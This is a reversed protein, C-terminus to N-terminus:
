HDEHCVWSPSVHRLFASVAPVQQRGSGGGRQDLRSPRGRQDLHSPACRGLRSVGRGLCRSPTRVKRRHINLDQSGPLELLGRSDTAPAEMSGHVAGGNGGWLGASTAPRRSRPARGGRRCGRPRWPRRPSRRCRRRTRPAARAGPRPRPRRGRRPRPGCSRWVVGAGPGRGPVPVGVEGAGVGAGSAAGHAVGLQEDGLPGRGAVRQAVAQDGGFLGATMTSAISSSGVLGWRRSSASFVRSPSAPRSCAVSRAM